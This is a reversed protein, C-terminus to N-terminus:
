FAGFFITSFTTIPSTERFDDITARAEDVLGELKVYLTDEKILRGVTGEQEELSKSFAKLSAVSEKLDEYVQDDSSLLKGITGEGAEVRSLISEADESAERLNELTETLAAYPGEEESLLKGLTGKGEAIRGTVERVNVAVTELEAASQNLSTVLKRAEDYLSDDQVLKGVTGRGAVIEQTIKRLDAVLGEAEGLLNPAPEGVLRAHSESPLVPLDRSGEEIVLRM